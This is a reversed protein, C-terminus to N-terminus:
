KWLMTKGWIKMNKYIKGIFPDKKQGKKQAAVFQYFTFINLVIDSKDAARWVRRAVFKTTFLTYTSSWWGCRWWKLLKFCLSRLKERKMRRRRRRTRRGRLASVIQQVCIFILKESHHFSEHTEGGGRRRCSSTRGGKQRRNWRQTNKQRRASFM